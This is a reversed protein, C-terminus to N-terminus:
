AIDNDRGKVPLRILLRCGGLYEPDIEISGRHSIAVEQAMTLGMGSHGRPHAWGCFFPEFIKLRYASPVGPGNDTLELVLEREDLQMDFSILRHNGGGERLAEIANDILYKFMGRLANPRGTMAPIAPLPRWDVVVGSALLSEQSLTIVEHLIENLHILASPEYTPSPLADSLTDIAEDGSEIAQHLAASLRKEDGGPVALAARIVNLPAQLKFLAASISERMSQVMQQEVMGARILNMRAETERKRTRTVENAVLLLCCRMEGDSQFYHSAAQDLEAVRVGSCSFWRAPRNGPPDLRVELNDFGQDAQCLSDLEFDLQEKLADLLLQAPEQGKFDGLLAKYAHNDMLIKQNADLLAIVMPVADLTAETLERQYKLRQQLAHMESIDRHMGLYHTIDEAGDLVPAISLEALYESKDRRHNVLTGRWVRKQSISSWLDQYVTDPTSHSSLISENEGIVRQREYGTLTEFSKNVYLIGAKPDTISIAVPAQEVAEMFLRPPLDVSGLMQFMEIVEAPTDQPPSELFRHIASAMEAQPDQKLSPETKKM